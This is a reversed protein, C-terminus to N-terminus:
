SFPHVRPHRILLGGRWITLREFNIWGREGVQELKSEGEGNISNGFKNPSSSHKERFYTVFRTVTMVLEITGSLIQVDKAM